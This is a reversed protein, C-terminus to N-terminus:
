KERKQVPCGCVWAFTEGSDGRGALEVLMVTSHEEESGLRWVLRLLLKRWGAVIM